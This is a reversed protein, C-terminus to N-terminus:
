AERRLRRRLRWMERCVKFITKLNTVKSAGSIRPSVEIMVETMRYGLSKAQLAIEQNVFGTTSNLEIHDLIERKFVRPVGHVWGFKGVIVNTLLRQGVSLIKRFVSKSVSPYKSLIIDNEACLPLLKLLNSVPFEGDAPFYSILRGRCAAYGSQLAAGLGKNGQHHIISVSPHKKALEETEEFTKDTSGDDVIIIESEINLGETVSLADNVVITINGSENYAPIVISLELIPDAM